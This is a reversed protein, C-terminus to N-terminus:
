RVLEAIDAALGPVRAEAEVLEERPWEGARARAGQQLAILAWRVHAFVEWFLVRVPDPVPGGAAIYADFFADRTGLGGAELAANPGRWCRACFWGIDEVPDGAGAFEWDLIAALRGAGVLFNGTRFDRHVLADRIPEPANDRLWALGVRVGDPVNPTAHEWGALMVVRMAPSEPATGEPPPVAHLRALTAALEGVLEPLPAGAFLRERETMGTRYESVFFPSGIVDRGTELWLPKCVPVGHAHARRLIAFEEAKASSEALPINPGARLVVSDTWRGDALDLRWNRQVAGGPLLTADVLRLSPSDYKECLWAQLPELEPALTPSSPALDDPM